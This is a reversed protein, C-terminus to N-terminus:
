AGRMVDMPNDPVRGMCGITNGQNHKRPCVATVVDGGGMTIDKIGRVYEAKAAASGSLIGAKRGAKEESMPITTLTTHVPCACVTIDEPCRTGLSTRARNPFPLPPGQPDPLCVDSVSMHFGEGSTIVKPM